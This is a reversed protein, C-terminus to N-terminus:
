KYAGPTPFVIGGSAGLVQQITGSLLSNRLQNATPSQGVANPSIPYGGVTTRTGNSGLSGLGSMTTGSLNQAISPPNGQTQYAVMSQQVGGITSQTAISQLDQTNGSISPAYGTNTPTTFTSGSRAIPSKQTDYHTPDAFGLVSGSPTSGGIAGEYYKVTEYDLTVTHTMTGNGQEYDYTDHQWNTIMPNILVYSAYRKQSLGYIRIDTFFPPKYGYQGTIKSTDAYSEGIYGWDNYVQTDQYIARVNYDSGTSLTQLNGLSGNTSPIGSYAQSPDKYYYAYYNYWMTRVLDDQDDHLTIQVPDYNIKSQVLRKRNYQNMTNVQLTYQPLQATKVMLGITYTESNGFVSQLAPIQGTNINFYVHFLFKVRPSYQFGGSAFTRAAHTYDRLTTGVPIQLLSDGYAM